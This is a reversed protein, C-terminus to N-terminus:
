LELLNVSKKEYLGTPSQDIIKISKYDKIKFLFTNLTKVGSHSKGGIQLLNVGAKRGTKFLAVMEALIRTQEELDYDTFKDKSALMKEGLDSYMKSFPKSLCKDTLVKFLRLNNENSIGMFHKVKLNKDTKCKELYSYIKKVYATDDNDLILSEASVFKISTNQKAAILVRYGDLDLVSNIKIIRHELPFTISEPLILTNMDESLKQAIYSKAFYNDNLFKDAYLLEVAALVAGKGKVSAISYFSITANDFGGYKEIPLDNKIRVM